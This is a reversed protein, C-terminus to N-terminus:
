RSAQYVGRREDPLLAAIHEAIAQADAILGRHATAFAAREEKSIEEGQKRKKLVDDLVEVDNTSSIKMPDGILFRGRGRGSLGALFGRAIDAPKELAAPAGEYVFAAPLITAAARQALYASGVGAKQMKGDTAFPHIAIWPTKGKQLSQLITSFDESDFIGQKKTEGRAESYSLPTFNEKGAYTMAAYQALRVPDWGQFLLSEATIQIDLVDGLAAVAAPADLNSIHSAAIIFRENPHQERHRAFKEKGEVSFEKCFLEILWRSGRRLRESSRQEHRPEHEASSRTKM